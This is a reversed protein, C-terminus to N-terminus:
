VPVLASVDHYFTVPNASASTFGYPAFNYYGDVNAYYTTGSVSAQQSGATASLTYGQGGAIAVGNVSMVMYGGGGGAVGPRVIGSALLSASDGAWMVCYVGNQLKVYSTSATTNNSAPEAVAVMRRNFWSAVYRGNSTQSFTATPNTVLMGVLTYGPNGTRIEVGDTHTSHPNSSAPLLDIVISGNGDDRAYAYYVTNALLSANTVSIYTPLWYQKGNIVLGRGNHPYLRCETASQYQFLCEGHRLIDSTRALERWPGWAGSTKNASSRWYRRGGFGVPSGGEVGYVTYEQWLLNNSSVGEAAHVELLGAFPAPYNSGATAGATANQAFVGGTRYDNLDHAGTPLLTANPGQAAPIRGNANLEAVGLAAGKTSLPITSNQLTTIRGDVYTKTTAHNATTPTGINVPIFATDSSNRLDLSGSNSKLNIGNKGLQIQSGVGILGFNKSQFM